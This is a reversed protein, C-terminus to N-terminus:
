AFLESAETVTVARRVWSGLLALDKCTLIRDRQEATLLIGRAELVALLATAEGEAKGEAKGQSIYRLAFDSKFKYGEPFMADIVTRAAESLSARVLDFCVVAREDALRGFAAFSASAVAVAREIDDAPCHAMASLVALEPEARAVDQDTIAPVDQMSLVTPVFVASNGIPIPRRAWRAVAPNPAFVV